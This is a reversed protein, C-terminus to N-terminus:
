KSIPSKNTDNKTKDLRMKEVKEAEYIIQYKGMDMIFKYYPAKMKQMAINYFGDKFNTYLEPNIYLDNEPYFYSLSIEQGSKQEIMSIVYGKCNENLVKESPLEKENVLSTSNSFPSSCHVEDLNKWKACVKQKDANYSVFQYGKIGTSLYEKVFSGNEYIYLNMKNGFKQKQYNIYEKDDTKSVFTINYKIVGEFSKRHKEQCNLLSFTFLVITLINIKM